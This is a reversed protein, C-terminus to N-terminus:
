IGLYVMIIIKKAKDDSINESCGVHHVQVFNGSLQFNGILKLLLIVVQLVM